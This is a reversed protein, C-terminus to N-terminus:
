GGWGESSVSAWLSEEEGVRMMVIAAKNLLKRAVFIRPILSLLFCTASGGNEMNGRSFSVNECLVRPCEELVFCSTSVCARGSMVVWKWLCLFVCAHKGLQPCWIIIHSNLNSTSPAFSVVGAKFFFSFHHWSLRRKVYFPFAIAPERIYICLLAFFPGRPLCVLDVSAESIFTFLIFIFRVTSVNKKQKSYM